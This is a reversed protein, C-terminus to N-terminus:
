HTGHQNGKEATSADLETTRHQNGLKAANADLNTLGTSIENKQQMKTWSLPDRASNVSGMLVKKMLIKM